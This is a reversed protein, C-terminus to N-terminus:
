DKNGNVVSYLERSIEEIKYPKTVRGKFGYDDFNSIVPDNFYGSSVIVKVDPDISRLKKVAKEGGMGGPITLDMIVADFPKGKLKEEKYLKIAERGDRAFGTKYGLVNLMEGAVTRISEEDDMVLIKGKGPLIKEERKYLKGIDEQLAPIYLYFTTGSGINSEVSIFGQHRKLISYCISLGLGNGNQKTSFFPDFIKDIIEEPIGKGQDKISIKLYKGHPLPISTLCDKDIEINEAGIFIKGKQSMAQLSNEIIHNIVQSMQGEDIRTLFLNDTFNYYCKVRSGSMASTVAKNIVETMCTVKRVPEGGKAFTQLRNTLDKARCVAREIEELRKYIKNDKNIHLKSLSVNGLIVALANNFDHSIRGAFLGIGELKSVKKLEEAMRKRESIDRIVAYVAARGKYNFPILATEVDKCKGDICIYKEEKFENCNTEVSINRYNQRYDPHVYDIIRKGKLENKHSLGLINAASSNGFVIVGDCYIIIATPALEAVQHLSMDSIKQKLKLLQPSELALKEEIINNFVFNVLRLNGEQDSVGAAHVSVTMRSGDRKMVQLIGRASKQASTLHVYFEEFNKIGNFEVFNILNEGFLDCFSYGFTNLWMRNVQLICGQRDTVLFSLPADEFFHRYPDQELNFDSDLRKTADIM